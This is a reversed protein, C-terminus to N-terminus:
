LLCLQFRHFSDPLDALAANSRNEELHPVKGSKAAWSAAGPCGQPEELPQLTRSGDTFNGSGCHCCSSGELAGCEEACKVCLEEGAVIERKAEDLHSSVVDGM